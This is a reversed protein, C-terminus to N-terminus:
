GSGLMKSLAYRFEAEGINFDRAKSGTSVATNSIHLVNADAVRALNSFYNEHADLHGSMLLAVLQDSGFIINAFAAGSPGVIYRASQFLAVQDRFTLEELFICSFGFSEAEALLSEQNYSRASPSKRALYIRQAPAAESPSSEVSALVKARYSRMAGLNLILPVRRSADSTFPADYVPSDAWFLEDARIEEGERLWIIERGDLFIQLSEMM